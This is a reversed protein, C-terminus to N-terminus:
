RGSMSLAALEARSRLALDVRQRRARVYIPLGSVLWAIVICSTLMVLGYVAGYEPPLDPNPIMKAPGMVVVPVLFIFALVRGFWHGRLWWYLVGLGVVGYM